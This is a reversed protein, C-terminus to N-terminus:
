DEEAIKSRNKEPSPLSTYVLKKEALHVLFISGGAFVYCVICFLETRWASLDSLLHVLTALAPLALSLAMYFSSRKLSLVGGKYDGVTMKYPATIYVFLGNLVWIMAFLSIGQTLGTYGIANVAIHRTAALVFLAVSLIFLLCYFAKRLRHRSKSEAATYYDGVYVNERRVNGAPTLVERTIWGELYRDLARKHKQATAVTSLEFDTNNQYEKNKEM